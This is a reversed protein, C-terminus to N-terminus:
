DKYPDFTDSAAMAVGIPRLKHLVEITGAHEALVIVKAKPREIFYNDLDDISCSDPFRLGLIIVDPNLDRFMGFGEAANDTEGILDIDDQGDIVAGVGLRTLAHNEILLLKITQGM